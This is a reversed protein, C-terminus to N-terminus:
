KKLSKIFEDLTKKLDNVENKLSEFKKNEENRSSTEDNRLEVTKLIAEFAAIKLDHLKSSKKIRKTPSAPLSFDDNRKIVKSEGSGVEVKVLPDGGVNENISDRFLNWYKWFSPSAGTRKSDSLEKRYTSLLDRYKTAVKKSNIKFGLEETLEEWLKNCKYGNNRNISFAQAYNDSNRLKVLSEVMDATWKIKEETM